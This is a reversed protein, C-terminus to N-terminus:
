RIARVRGQRRPGNQESRGISKVDSEPSIGTSPPTPDNLPFTLGSVFCLEYPLTMTMSIYTVGDHTYSHWETIIPETM